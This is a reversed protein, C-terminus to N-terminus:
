ITKYMKLHKIGVEQFPEGEVSYNMKKYFEVATDRANLVIKKYGKLTCFRECEGVLVTGLGKSQYHDDVAVQRMKIEGDSKPSLVLCAALDGNYLLALHYDQYEMALDEAQFELGLPKRLIKDRLAISLDYMPTMFEIELFELKDKLM